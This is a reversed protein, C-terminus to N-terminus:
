RNPKLRGTDVNAPMPLTQSKGPANKTLTFAQHASVCFQAQAPPTAGPVFTATYSTITGKITNHGSFHMSGTTYYYDNNSTFDTSGSSIDDGLFFGWGENATLGTHKCATLMNVNMSTVTFTGGVQTVTLSITGGDVSSGSFSGASQASAVGSILCAAAFVGSFIAIRKM